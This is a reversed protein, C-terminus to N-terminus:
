WSRPRVRWRSRLFVYVSSHGNHRLREAEFIEEKIATITLAHLLEACKDALELSSKCRSEEETSGSPAEDEVPATDLYHRTEEILARLQECVSLRMRDSARKLKEVEVAMALAERDRLTMRRDAEFMEGRKARLRDSLEMYVSLDARLKTHDCGANTRTSISPVATPVPVQKVIVHSCCTTTKRGM